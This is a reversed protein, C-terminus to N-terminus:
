RGHAPPVQRPRGPKRAALRAQVAPPIPKSSPEVLLRHRARDTVALLRAFEEPEDVHDYLEAMGDLVHGRVLKAADVDGGGQTATTHTHRVSGFAVGPRKIGLRNLLRRLAQAVEDVRTKGVMRVLPEGSKTVLIRRNPKGREPLAAVTEPWLPAIWPVGTKPRKWRLCPAGNVTAIDRWRLESIDQAYMGANLGLLLFLRQRRSAYAWMATLDEAAFLRKPKVAREHRAAHRGPKRFDPGYDPALKAWKFLSRITQIYNGRKTAPLIKWAGAVMSFDATTLASVKRRPGVRAVFDALALDYDDWTRQKVHGAAIRGLYYGKYATALQHLEPDRSNAQAAVASGGLERAHLYAILHKRADEESGGRPGFYHIQGAIKKCWYGNAHRTLTLTPQRKRNYM